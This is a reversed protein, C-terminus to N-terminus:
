PLAIWLGGNAASARIADLTRANGLADSLPVLPQTGNRVAHSFQELQAGYQNGVPFTLERPEGDEGTLSALLRATGSPSHVPTLMEINGETGLIHVRRGRKLTTAVTFRATGDAFRLTADVLTDRGTDDFEIHAAVDIPEGGFITRAQHVSYCGIDLLLSGDGPLATRTPDPAGRPVTLATFSHVARVRGLKGSRITEEVWQWQPQHRLMFGEAILLDAARPHAAIREVEAAGLGMPKECLVHKGADLSQLVANVHASHPLGIYVAEVQPDALLDALSGYGAALGHDSAFARAKDLTRSSVAVPLAISSGKLQDAVTASISGTGAIGWGVLGSKETM